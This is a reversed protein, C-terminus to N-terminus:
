VMGGMDGGGSMPQEEKLRGAVMNETTIDGIEKDSNASVTGVQAVRIRARGRVTKEVLAACSGTTAKAYQPFMPLLLIEEGAGIIAVRKM